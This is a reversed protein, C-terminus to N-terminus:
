RGAKLLLLGGFFRCFQYPRIEMVVEVTYCQLVRTFSFLFILCVWWNVIEFNEFQSLEFVAEVLPKSIQWAIWIGYRVTHNTHVKPLVLEHNLLWWFWRFVHCFWSFCKLVSKLLDNIDMRTSFPPEFLRQQNWSFLVKWYNDNPFSAYFQLGLFRNFLEGFM